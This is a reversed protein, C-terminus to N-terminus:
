VHVTGPLPNKHSAVTRMEELTLVRIGQMGKQKLFQQLENQVAHTVDKLSPGELTLNQIPMVFLSLNMEPLWIDSPRSYRMRTSPTLWMIEADIQRGSIHVQASTFSNTLSDVTAPHGLSDSETRQLRNGQPTCGALIVSVTLATVAITKM